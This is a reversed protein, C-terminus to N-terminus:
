NGTGPSCSVTSGTGTCIVPGVVEFGNLDLTAGATLLEIGNKDPDSVSLNGTLRFSGSGLTVPFGPADGAVCGTATACAQNIELVGDGAHAGSALAVGLLAALLAGCRRRVPM